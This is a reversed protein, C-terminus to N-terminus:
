PIYVYFGKKHTSEVKVFNQKHEKAVKNKIDDKCMPCLFILQSQNKKILETDFGVCEPHYWDCQDECEIYQKNDNQRLCLCFRQKGDRPEQRVVLQHTEVGLEQDGPNFSKKKSSKNFNSRSTIVDQGVIEHVIEKKLPSNNSVIQPVEYVAPLLTPDFRQNYM